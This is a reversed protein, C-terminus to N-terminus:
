VGCEQSLLLVPEPKPNPQATLADTMELVMFIEVSHLTDKGSHKQNWRRCHYDAFYPRFDARDKRWITWLYKSWRATKWTMAVNAPKDWSISTSENHLDVREGSRLSGPIM